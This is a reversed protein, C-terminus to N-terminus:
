FTMAVNWHFKRFMSYCFQSCTHPFNLMKHWAFTFLIPPCGSHFYVDKRKTCLGNLVFAGQSYNLAVWCFIGLLSDMKPQRQMSSCAKLFSEMSLFGSKMDMYSVARFSFFQKEMNFQAHFQYDNIYSPGFATSFKCFDWFAARQQTLMWSPTSFEKSNRIVSFTRCPIPYSIWQAIEQM